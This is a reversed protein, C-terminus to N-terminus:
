QKKLDALVISKTHIPVPFMELSCMSTSKDVYTVSYM